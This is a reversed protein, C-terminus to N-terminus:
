AIEFNETKQTKTCMTSTLTIFIFTFSHHANYSITIYYKCIYQAPCLITIHDYGTNKCWGRWWVRM